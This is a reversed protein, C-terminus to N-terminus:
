VFSVNTGWEGGGRRKGEREEVNWSLSHGEEFGDLRVVGLESGDKCIQMVELTLVVLKLIDKM